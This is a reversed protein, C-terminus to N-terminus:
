SRPDRGRCGAVLPKQVVATATKMRKAEPSGGEQENKEWDTSSPVGETVSQGRREAEEEETIGHSRATQSVTNCEMKHEYLKCTCSMEM